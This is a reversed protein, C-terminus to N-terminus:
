KILSILQDQKDTYTVLLREKARTVAVYLLRREEDYCRFKKTSLLVTDWELGKASHVTILTVSDTEERSTSHTEKTNYTRYKVCYEILQQLTHFNKSELQSIFDAAIYDEKADELLGFFFTIKDSETDLGNLIQTLAKACIQLMPIDFPDQGMSKVYVALDLLDDPNSFFAALSIAAKVFPSDGVIEPVKLVTPIGAEELAAQIKLLEGRTRALIAITKAQHGDRILKRTQRVFLSTEEDVSKLEMLAPNLGSTQKHARIVKQIRAENEIIRNALNIIPTQSRFNDELNIDVMNPFYKSFNVLHDPTANRFSYIAQLEDGVVVLSKMSPSKKAIELIIAIQNLNSDQFEDIVIHEYNFLEFIGLEKLQLVLRLQDEFDILNRALLEQNYDKYMDFLSQALCPDQEFKGKGVKAAQQVTEAHISKLSDLLEIAKIVAGKASFMSMFPNRYDFPFMPYKKLLEIVIDKKTIDDILTPASSFGLKVYHEELLKQGWSNFTEVQVKETNLNEKKLLMGQAYARLRDRMENCAKDTFTIMLIRAPDTGEELLRLTRLTVITTKGSGAVANVRCAGSNFAVFQQQAPTLRIEDITKQPVAPLDILARKQFELFCLDQYICDVCNKPECATEGATISVGDYFNEVKSVADGTFEFKIINKESYDPEYLSSKDKDGKLYYIAGIVPKEIQQKQAEMEGSRQLALLEISFEPRRDKIRARESYEPRKYKYRISELYEGRDILRHGLVDTQRGCLTISNVYEQSIITGTRTREWKLYREILFALREAESESEFPLMRIPHSQFADQVLGKIKSLDTSTIDLKFLVEKMISRLISQKTVGSSVNSNLFAKRPCTKAIALNTSM